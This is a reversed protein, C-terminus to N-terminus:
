KNKSAFYGAFRKELKALESARKSPPYKMVQAKADAYAQGDSKPTQLYSGVSESM